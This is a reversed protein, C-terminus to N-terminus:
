HLSYIYKSRVNLYWIRTLILTKRNSVIIRLKRTSITSQWARFTNELFYYTARAQDILVGSNKDLTKLRPSVPVVKSTSANMRWTMKFSSSRIDWILWSSVSITPSVSILWPFCQSHARLPHHDSPLRGVLLRKNLSKLSVFSRPSLSHTKARYRFRLGNIKSGWMFATDAHPKQFTWHDRGEGEQKKLGYEESLWRSWKEIRSDRIIKYLWISVLATLQGM